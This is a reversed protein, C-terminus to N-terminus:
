SRAKLRKIRRLRFRAYCRHRIKSSLSFALFQYTEFFCFAALCVVMAMAVITWRRPGDSLYNLDDNLDILAHLLALGAVAGVVAILLSAGSLVRDNRWMM